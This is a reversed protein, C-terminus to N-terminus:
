AVVGDPVPSSETVLALEIETRKAIAEPLYLTERIKEAPTIASIGMNVGRPNEDWHGWIMGLLYMDASQCVLTVPTGDGRKYNTDWVTARVFVPSGSLGSFSRAEILHMESFGGGVQIPHDPLMAIAGHRLLPTNVLEGPVFEFLGPFIVDDGIGIFYQKMNEPTVFMSPELHRIHVSGPIDYRAVAVDVSPDPHFYWDKPKIPKRGGGHTNVIIRVLDLNLGRLLHRATVFYFFRNTPRLIAPVGVAFASGKLDFGDGSTDSTLYEAIFGVCGLIEDPVRV